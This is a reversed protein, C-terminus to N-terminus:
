SGTGNGPSSSMPLPELNNIHILAILDYDEYTPFATDAAPRGIFMTTRGVVALEPHRIDLMRGNSLHIRFPQFPQTRLVRNLDDPRV